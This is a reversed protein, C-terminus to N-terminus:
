GGFSLERKVLVPIKLEGRRSRPPLVDLDRRGHGADQRERGPSQRVVQVHGDAADAGGGAAHRGRPNGRPTRREVLELMTRSIPDMAAKVHEPHNVVLQM